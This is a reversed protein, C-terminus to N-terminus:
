EASEADIEAASDADSEADSDAFSSTIEMDPTIIGPEYQLNFLKWHRGVKGVYFNMRFTEEGKSGKFTVDTVVLNAESIDPVTGYAEKYGDLSYETLVDARQIKWGITFDDGYSEAFDAAFTEMYKKDGMESLKLDSEYDKQMEKPFCSSYKDFDRENIATLYKDVVDSSKESFGIVGTGFLTGVVILVAAIALVILLRVMKPDRKKKGNKDRQAEKLKKYHEEKEEATMFRVPKNTQYKKAAKIELNPDGYGCHECFEGKYEKGCSKCIKSM